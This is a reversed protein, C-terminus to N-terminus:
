AGPAAAPPPPIRALLWSGPGIRARELSWAEGLRKTRDAVLAVISEPSPADEGGDAALFLAVQGANVGWHPYEECARKAVDAVDACGSLSVKGFVQGALATDSVPM